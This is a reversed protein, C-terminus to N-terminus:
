KGEQTATRIPEHRVDSLILIPWREDEPWSQQFVLSGIVTLPGDYGPGFTWFQIVRLDGPRVAIVFEGGGPLGSKEADQPEVHFYADKAEGGLLRVAATKADPCTVRLWERLVFAHCGSAAQGMVRMRHTEKAKSSWEHATPRPTHAARSFDVGAEDAATAPAALGVCFSFFGPVLHAAPRRGESTKM